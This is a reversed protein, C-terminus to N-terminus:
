YIHMPLRYNSLSLVSTWNPDHAKTNVEHDFNIGKELSGNLLYAHLQEIEACQYPELLSKWDPEVKGETEVEDAVVMWLIFADPANLAELRNFHATMCGSRCNPVALRYTVEAVKKRIEYPGDM